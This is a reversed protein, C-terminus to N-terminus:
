SLGFFNLLYLALNEAIILSQASLVEGQAYTTLVLPNNTYQLFQLSVTNVYAAFLTALGANPQTIRSSKSQVQTLNLALSQGFNFWAQFNELSPVQFYLEGFAFFQNLQHTLQPIFQPYNVFLISALTASVGGPQVIDINVTNVLNNQQTFNTRPIAFLLILEHLDLTYRDWFLSFNTQVINLCPVTQAELPRYTLLLAITLIGSIMKNM